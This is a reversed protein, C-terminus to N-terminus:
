SGREKNLFEGIKQLGQPLDHESFAHVEHKTCWDFFKSSHITIDHKKFLEIITIGYGFYNKFYIAIDNPIKNDLDLVALRDLLNIYDTAFRICHDASELKVTTILIRKFDEDYERMLQAYRMNNNEKLAEKNSDLADKNLKFNWILFITTIVSIGIAIWGVDFEM